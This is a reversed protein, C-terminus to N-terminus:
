RTAGGQLSVAGGWAIDESFIPSTGTDCAVNEGPHLTM